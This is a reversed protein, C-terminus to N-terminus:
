ISIDKLFTNIKLYAEGNGYIKSSPLLELQPKFMSKLIEPTPTYIIYDDILETRETIKRCCYIRKGLFSAEEQIGGSDSIICNCEELLKCLENHPLPNIVKVKNFITELKKIEPNPHIPLIFTFDSYINALEEITEFFSKIQNWNERRHLTIIVTNGITPQLNYKKIADISTNGVIEIHGTFKENILNQASNISPCLAINSISDIMKRYGEEPWPNELDYTRLGAELHIINIRKTYASFAAAFAVATDGQVLIAKWPKDFVNSNLISIMINNLRNSNFENIDIFHCNKLSSIDLIDTHQYVVIPEYIDSSNLLPLCKILEPRTGIFIGIKSM